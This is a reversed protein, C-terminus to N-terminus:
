YAGRLYRAAGPRARARGAPARSAERRTSPRARRRREPLSSCAAASPPSATPRHAERGADVAVAEAQAMRVDVHHEAARGGSLVDALRASRERFAWEIRALEGPHPALRSRTRGSASGAVRPNLACLARGDAGAEAPVSRGPRTRSAHTARGVPRPPVTRHM